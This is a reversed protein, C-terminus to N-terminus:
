LESSSKMLKWGMTEKNYSLEYLGQGDTVSFHLVGVSGERTKWTFAIESIRVQRGRRSFWVPKMAGRSFVAGVNIFEDIEVSM